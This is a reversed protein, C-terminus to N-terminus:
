ENKSYITIKHLEFLKGDTMQPDYKCHVNVTIRKSITPPVGNSAICMYTGMENRTIKQLKLIEGQYSTVAVFAPM